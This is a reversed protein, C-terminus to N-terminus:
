GFRGVLVPGFGVEFVLFEGAKRNELLALVKKALVRALDGPHTVVSDRLGAFWSHFYENGCVWHRQLVNRQVALRRGRVLAALEAPFPVATQPLGASNPLCSPNLDEETVDKCRVADFWGGVARQLDAFCSQPHHHHHHHHDHHATAM